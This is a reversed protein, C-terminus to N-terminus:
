THPRVHINHIMDWNRSFRIMFPIFNNMWETNLKELNHLMKEVTLPSVKSNIVIQKAYADLEPLNFMTVHHIRVIASKYTYIFLQNEPISGQESLNKAGENGVKTAITHWSM